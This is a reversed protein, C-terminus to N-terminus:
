YPSATGNDNMVSAVVQCRAASFVAAGSEREVRLAFRVSQLAPIQVAGAVSTNGWAASAVSDRVAVAGIPQWSTGGDTSVVPRTSYGLDGSALGGFAVAVLAQRPYNAAAALPTACVAPAGDPDVGALTAEVFAIQPTLASGLRNMFLAMAARSVVNAPCYTSLTCGTTIARNRLWEVAPCAPDTDAVDSFGACPAAAVPTTAVCLALALASRMHTM